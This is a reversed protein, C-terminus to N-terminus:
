TKIKLHPSILVQFDVSNEGCDKIYFYIGNDDESISIYNLNHKKIYEHINEILNPFMNPIYIGNYGSHIAKSIMDLLSIDLDFILRYKTKKGIKVLHEESQDLYNYIINYIDKNLKNKLYEM